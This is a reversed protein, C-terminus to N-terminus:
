DSRNVRSATMIMLLGERTDAAKARVIVEDAASVKGRVRFVLRANNVGVLTVLETSSGGASDSMEPLYRGQSLTGYEMEKSPVPEIPM